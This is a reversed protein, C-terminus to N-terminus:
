CADLSGQEVDENAAGTKTMRGLAWLGLGIADIMNHAKSKAVRAAAVLRTEDVSLRKLVRANHVDKPVQGKWQAPKPLQTKAWPFHSMLNGAIAALPLLDNNDGKSWKHYIQPWEIVLMLPVGPTAQLIGQGISRIRRDFPMNAKTEIIGCRDLREGVFFAWGTCTIAPDVALLM